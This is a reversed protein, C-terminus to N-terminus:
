NSINFYKNIHCSASKNTTYLIFKHKKEKTLKKVKSNINDIAHRIKQMDKKNDYDIVEFANLAIDEFYLEDFINDQKFIYELVYHPNPKTSKLQIPIEKGFINLISSDANYSISKEQVGKKIFEESDIHDIIYKNILEISAGTLKFNPISVKHELIEINQVQLADDKSEEHLLRIDLDKISKFAGKPKNNKITDLLDYIFLICFVMFPLVEKSKFSNDKEKLKKRFVDFENNFIPSTNKDPNFKFDDLTLNYVNNSMIDKQKSAYEWYNKLLEFTYKESKLYDVYNYVVVLGMFGLMNQKYDLDFKKLTTKITKKDM